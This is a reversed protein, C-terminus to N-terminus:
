RLVIPFPKSLRRYNDVFRRYVPPFSVSGIKANHGATMCDSRDCWCGAKGDTIMVAGVLTM